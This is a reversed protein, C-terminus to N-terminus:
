LHSEPPAAVVEVGPVLTLSVEEPGFGEPGQSGLVEGRQSGTQGQVDDRRRLVPQCGQPGEDRAQPGGQDQALGPVVFVGPGKNGLDTKILRSLRDIIM